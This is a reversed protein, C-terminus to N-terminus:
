WPIYLFLLCPIQRRRLISTYNVLKHSHVIQSSPGKSKVIRDLGWNLGLGLSRGGNRNATIENEDKMRTRVITMLRDYCGDM